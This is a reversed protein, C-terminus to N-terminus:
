LIVSFFVNKYNKNLSYRGSNNVQERLAKEHNFVHSVIQSYFYIILSMPMVYCIVFMIGVFAKTEDTHSLYDFTCSTLYGESISFLNNTVINYKNM